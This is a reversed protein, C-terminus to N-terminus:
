MKLLGPAGIVGSRQLPSRHDPPERQLGSLAFEDGTAVTGSGAFKMRGPALPPFVGFLAAAIIM